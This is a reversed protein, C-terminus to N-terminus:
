PRDYFVVATRPVHQLRRAPDSFCVTMREIRCRALLEEDAVKLQGFGETLVLSDLLIQSRALHQLAASSAFGHCLMLELRLVTTPLLGLHGLAEGVQDAAVAVSLELVVSPSLLEALRHVAAVSLSESAPYRLHVHTLRGCAAISLSKELDAGTCRVSYPMSGVAGAICAPAHFSLRTELERLSTLAAACAALEASAWWGCDWILASHAHHAQRRLLGRVGQAQRLGDASPHTDHFSVWRSLCAPSLQQTAYDTCLCLRQADM